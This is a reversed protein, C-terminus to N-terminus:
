RNIEITIYLPTQNAISYCTSIINKLKCENNSFGKQIIKLYDDASNQNNDIICDIFNSIITEYEHNNELLHELICLKYHEETAYINLLEM